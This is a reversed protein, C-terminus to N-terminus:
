LLTNLLLGGGLLAIAQGLRLTWAARQRLVKHAIAMGIGHLVASGLVIGSLIAGGAELESGHALGHCFAFAGIIALSVGPAPKFPMALMLGLVLVSAAVLPELQPLAFGAQGAVAGIALLSVFCLPALWVRRSNLVSWIGVVLMAALHDVGLFPHTFGDAFGHDGHGTHAMAALPLCLLSAALLQSSLKKM